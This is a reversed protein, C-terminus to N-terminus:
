ILREEYGKQIAESKRNVNLKKYINKMHTKVTEGSVILDSAIQSYTKGAALHGLIERERTTLISTTNLRFDEVVMRAIKTSMPAGGKVIEELGALLETYNSSKSLYGSAGAKIADFVLATDEHVTVM